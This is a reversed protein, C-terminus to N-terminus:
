GHIDHLYRARSEVETLKSAAYISAQKLLEHAPADNRRRLEDVSYGRTSLFEHILARELRAQREELPASELPDAMHEGGNTCDGGDEVRL